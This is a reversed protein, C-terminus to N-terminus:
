GVVHAKQSLRIIPPVVDEGATMIVNAFDDVAVVIYPLYQHGKTPDLRRQIFKQNYERVNRTAASSLLDFRNDMEICLSILSAYAQKGESIIASCAQPLKALFHHTLPRYLGLEITHMDILVLKLQAPHKKY